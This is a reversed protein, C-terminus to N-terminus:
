ALLLYVFYYYFLIFLLTLLLLVIEAIEKHGNLCTLLLPTFKKEALADVNANERILKEAIDKHGNRCALHLPTYKNEALADINAKERILIEVVEKHGNLCALHLPTYKNEALADINAKERVLIEVVEKHGNLCALHLPTSKDEDLADINANKRILIEVVKEHGNECALHLPTFKKEALAEINAKKWILIEVIKRYGNCCAWHLSTYKNEDLAHINANEGILIEVVKKRGNQCALHLPTYKNEALADINAKKRVLIEVVNKHGNLCALHLPTSKNEDLAEINAKKRILIEVVKEHGNECALHLPTSKNEDLAEINAKKRILIEVVEKHGNECALHLPTCKKEALADTNAKERILIKVVEKHGTRCALHLPTFKKEALAEINAKERILIEVVEKHGNCCALHLSTYKDEDLAFINANERILIEVVEKRGNRCALHLPTFKKEALAEINVKGGILIEVVEEHGNECALHLPTFKNEALADIVVKERILIKVVEKHGNQCAIHLPTWNRQGLAEINAKERILIEVVEKNGNQCAFHLPTWNNTDVAYVDAGKGLLLEVVLYSGESASLHLATCGISNKANVNAGYNILRGFKKIIIKWAVIGPDVLFISPAYESILMKMLSAHGNSLVTWLADDVKWNFPFKKPLEEILIIVVETHGGVAALDFPTKGENTTVDHRVGKQLLMKTMDADGNCCAIHLANWKNKTISHVDTGIDILFNTIAMQKHHVAYHLVSWGATNRINLDAGKGLLLQVLYIHGYIVASHLPALGDDYKVDPHVKCDDILYSCIKDSGNKIAIHFMKTESPRFLFKKSLVYKLLEVANSECAWFVVDKSNFSTEQAIKSVFLKINKEIIKIFFKRIGTFCTLINKIISKLNILDDWLFTAVFYEAYSHHSFSFKGDVFNLLISKEFQNQHNRQIYEWKKMYKPTKFIFKLEGVDLFEIALLQHDLYFGDFIQKNPDVKGIGHCADEIKLQLCNEIFFEYIYEFELFEKELYSIEDEEDVMSTEKFLEFRQKYIKSIMEVMLPVRCLSYFKDVLFKAYSHFKLDIDSEVKEKWSQKLYEIINEKSFAELSFYGGIIKFEEFFRQLTNKEYNRVSIIIQIQKSTFLLELLRNIKNINKKHIEDYGDFIITIHDDSRNELAKQILLINKDSLVCKLINLSAENGSAEKSDQLRNLYFLYVTGSKLKQLEFALYQLLKTKGVGPDAMLVLCRYQSFKLKLNAAFEIDTMKECTKKSLSTTDGDLQSAKLYQPEDIDENEFILVRNIYLENTYNLEPFFDEIRLRLKSCYQLVYQQNLYPKFNSQERKLTAEFHDDLDKVSHKYHYEKLKGLVDPRLWMRMWLNLEEIIFPELEDPQDVSLTLLEFFQRVDSAEAYFLVSHHKTRLDRGDFLKQKLTVVKDMDSLEAKLMRCLEAKSVLNNNFTEKFALQDHATTTLILGLLDKYKKLYDSVIGNRFLNEIAGALHKLDVSLLNTSIYEIGKIDLEPPKGIPKFTQLESQLRKYLESIFILSEDFTESFRIQYNGSEKLVDKLYAKYKILQDTIIGKTFLQKIADKLSYLDKNTYEVISQITSESPILLKQTAGDSAFRLYEDVYRDKIMVYDEATKLKEDLKKNTFLVLNIKGKFRNRIIMYSTFYKYLSFDGKERHTKPLLGNLDIKSDKGDAHKSQLFIWQKATEDYLVVDDFKDASTLEYALSFDREERTLRLLLLQALQRQYVDGHTGSKISSEYEVLPEIEPDIVNLKPNAM